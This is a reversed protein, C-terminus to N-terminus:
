MKNRAHGILQVRVRLRLKPTLLGTDWLVLGKHRDCTAYMDLGALMICKEAMYSNSQGAVALAPGHQELSKRPRRRLRLCVSQMGGGRSRDTQM